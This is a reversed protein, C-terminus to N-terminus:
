RCSGETSRDRPYTEDPRHRRRGASNRRLLAPTGSVGLRRGEAQDARVTLVTQDEELCRAFSAEDLGLAQARHVLEVRDLTKINLFLREHMEWFRGQQAACEAAESAEMALPHITELPFNMVVNRVHGADILDRKIAPFTERVYTGCFPCQFDSFEVVAISGIGSVHRIKAADIRLGDVDEVEPTTSTSTRSAKFVLTWILTGAALIVAVTSTIDLISKTYTAFSM